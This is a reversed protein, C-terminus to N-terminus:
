NDIWPQLILKYLDLNMAVLNGYDPHKNTCAGNDLYIRPSVLSDGIERMTRVTHGTILPRGGLKTKDPPGSELWLCQFPTSDMLPNDVRFNLGAHVLVFDNEQEILKLTGLLNLYRTPVDAVSSVGFSRLTVEGFIELWNGSWTDHEGSITRLLMDEHNGMLPRVDYGADLLAIIVDLVGCSDPGRDIYDGLLYLRDRHRLQLKSILAQFTRKGGHIDGVVYRAM